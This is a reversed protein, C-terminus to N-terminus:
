AAYVRLLKRMYDDEGRTALFTSVDFTNLRGAAHDGDIQALQRALSTPDAPDFLYGVGASQVLERMAGRDSALVNTGAALAEILTLGYSELCRSPLVLVHAAAIAALADAHPRWGLFRVHGGLGRRRCVKECSAREPGDGIIQMTADIDVPLHELFERVGKEPELRGAYALSLQPPRALRPGSRLAVPHPLLCTPRQLPAILRQMFRSPCIVMDITGLMARCRYHWLHQMIKMLSHGWGRRDWRRSLLYGLSPLREPDIPQVAAGGFWNGGSNPCVLHYDHATMVVRLTYRRRYERLADLIGPSLVHYFNHLHVVDPRLADLKEALARRAVPNDIYRRPTLRGDPLDAVTFLHPEADHAQLLEVTRRLLVETGGAATTPYDNIQLVKLM